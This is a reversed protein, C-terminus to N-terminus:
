YLLIFPSVSLPLPETVWREWAHLPNLVATSILWGSRQKETQVWAREELAPRVSFLMIVSVIGMIMGLPFQQNLFHSLTNFEIHDLEMIKIWNTSILQIVWCKWVLIFNLTLTIEKDNNISNINVLVLISKLLGLKFLTSILNFVFMLHFIFLFQVNQVPLLQLLM